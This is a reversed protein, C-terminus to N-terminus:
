KIQDPNPYGPQRTTFRMLDTHLELLTDTVVGLFLAWLFM